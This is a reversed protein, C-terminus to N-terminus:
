LVLEELVFFPQNSFEKAPPPLVHEFDLTRLCQVENSVETTASLDVTKRQIKM